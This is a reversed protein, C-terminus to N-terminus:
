CGPVFWAGVTFKLRELLFWVRPQLTFVLTAPVLALWAALHCVARRRTLPGRTEAQNRGGVWTTLSTDQRAAALQRGSLEARAESTRLNPQLISDSPSLVRPCPCM